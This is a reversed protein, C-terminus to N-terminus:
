KLQDLFEFYADKSRLYKATSFETDALTLLVTHETFDFMELFILCPIVLGKRPDDLLLTTSANRDYLRIKLSGSVPILLQNTNILAHGGRDGKVHHIYFVRKIEFPVDNLQEISTLIGRPDEFSPLDIVKLQKIDM